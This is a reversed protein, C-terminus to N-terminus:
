GIPVSTGGYAVSLVSTSSDIAVSTWTGNFDIGGNNGVCPQGEVPATGDTTSDGFGKLTFGTIQTKM